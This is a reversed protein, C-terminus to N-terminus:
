KPAMQPAIRDVRLATHKERRVAGKGKGKAPALHRITKGERKQKDEWMKKIKHDEDDLKNHSRGDPCPEKCKGHHHM